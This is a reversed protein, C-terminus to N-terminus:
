SCPRERRTGRSMRRVCRSPLYAGAGLLHTLPSLLDQRTLALVPRRMPHTHAQVSPSPAGTPTPVQPHGHGQPGHGKGPSSLAAPGARCFGRAWVRVEMARHSRGPHKAHGVGQDQVQTCKSNSQHRTHTPQRIHAVSKETHEFSQPQPVSRVAGRSCKM